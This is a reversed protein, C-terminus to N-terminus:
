RAEWRFHKLKPYASGVYYVEAVGKLPVVGRMLWDTISTAEVSNLFEGLNSVPQEFLNDVITYSKGTELSKAFWTLRLFPRGNSSIREESSNLWIACTSGAYLDRYYNYPNMM